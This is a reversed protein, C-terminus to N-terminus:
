PVISSGAATIPYSLATSAWKPARRADDEHMIGKVLLPRRWLRRYTELDRWTQIPYSQASVFAAVQRGSSGKPLYPAWDGGPRLLGAFGM